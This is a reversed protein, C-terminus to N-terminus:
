QCTLPVSGQNYTEQDTSLQLTHAIVTTKHCIILNKKDTQTEEKGRKFYIKYHM